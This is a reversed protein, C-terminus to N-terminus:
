LGQTSTLPAASLSLSRVSFAFRFDLVSVSSTRSRRQDPLRKVWERISKHFRGYYIGSGIGIMGIMGTDDSNPVAADDPDSVSTQLIAAFREAVLRTNGHHVSKCVIMTRM